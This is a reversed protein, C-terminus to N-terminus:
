EEADAWGPPLNQPSHYTKRFKTYAESCGGASTEPRPQRHHHRKPAGHAPQNNSTERQAELPRPSRLLDLINQRPLDPYHNPLQRPTPTEVVTIPSEENEADSSRQVEEQASGPSELEPVEPSEDFDIHFIPSNELCSSHRSMRPYYPTGHPAEIIKPRPSPMVFIIAQPPPTSMKPLGFYHNIRNEFSHTIDPVRREWSGFKPKIVPKLCIPSHIIDDRKKIRTM